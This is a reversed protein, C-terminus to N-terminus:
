NYITRSLTGTNAFGPEVAITGNSTIRQSLPVFVAAAATQNTPTPTVPGRGPAPVAAGAPTTVPTTVVTAADPKKMAFYILAAGGALLLLSASKNKKGKKKGIGAMRVGGKNKKAALYLAGLAGAVFLLETSESVQTPFNIQNPAPAMAATDSMGSNLPIISTAVVQSAPPLATSGGASLIADIDSATDEAGLGVGAINRRLAM